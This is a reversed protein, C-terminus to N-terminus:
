LDRVRYRYGFLDDAFGARAYLARAGENDAEVQLYLRTVGQRVAWEVLARLISSAAKRRRFSPLTWMSFIGMWPLECVGLGVAVVEAGIKGTAYVTPAAIRELLSRYVPEQGAYRGHRGSLDFWDETMSETVSCSPGADDPATALVHHPEAVLVRTPAEVVYGRRELRADLDDPRAGPGVQFVARANKRRYIDEVRDIRTEVDISGDGENPWVSNARRSAGGTYRVIWGDFHEVEAAPWARFSLGELSRVLATM